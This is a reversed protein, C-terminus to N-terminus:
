GLKDNELRHRFIEHSYGRNFNDLALGLRM